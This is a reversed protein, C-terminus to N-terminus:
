KEMPNKADKELHKPFHKELWNEFKKLLYKTAIKKNDVDLEHRVVEVVDTFQFKQRTQSFSNEVIWECTENRFVMTSKNGFHEIHFDWGLIRYHYFGNKTKPPDQTLHRIKNNAARVSINEM